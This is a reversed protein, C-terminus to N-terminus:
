SIFKFSSFTLLSLMVIEYSKFCRELKNTFWEHRNWNKQHHKFYFRLGMLYDEMTMASNNSSPHSNNASFVTTGGYWCPVPELVGISVLIWLHELGKFLLSYYLIHGVDASEVLPSGDKTGDRTVVGSAQYWLARCPVHGTIPPM